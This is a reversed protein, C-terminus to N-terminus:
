TRSYRSAARYVKAVLKVGGHAHLADYFKVGWIGPIGHLKEAADCLEIYSLGDLPVIIPSEGARRIRM